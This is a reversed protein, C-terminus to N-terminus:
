YLIFPESNQPPTKKKRVLRCFYNHFAPYTSLTRAAASVFSAVQEEDGSNANDSAVGFPTQQDRVGESQEISWFEELSQLREARQLEVECLCQKSPQTRNAM